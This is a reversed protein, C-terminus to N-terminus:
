RKEAVKGSFASPFKERLKAEMKSHFSRTRESAARQDPTMVGYSGDHKKTLDFGTAGSSQIVRLKEKQREAITKWKAKSDSGIIRDIEYDHASFGTDPANLGEGNGSVTVSVNRPLSRPVSAKCSPCTGNTSASITRASFNLGCDECQYRYVPM